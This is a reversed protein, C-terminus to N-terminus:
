QLSGFLDIQQDANLWKWEWEHASCYVLCLADSGSHDDVEDVGYDSNIHCPISELVAELAEIETAGEGLKGKGKGSGAMVIWGDKVPRAYADDEGTADRVRIILDGLKEAASM